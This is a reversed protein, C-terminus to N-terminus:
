KGGRGGGKGGGKGKGSKPPTRLGGGGRGAAWFQDNTMKTIAPPVRRQSNPASQAGRWEKRMCHQLVVQGYENKERRMVGGEGMAQIATAVKQKTADQVYHYMHPLLTM